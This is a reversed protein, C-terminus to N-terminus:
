VLDDAVLALAEPDPLVKDRVEAPNWEYVPVLQLVQMVRIMLSPMCGALRAVRPRHLNRVIAALADAGRLRTLGCSGAGDLVIVAGLPASRLQSEIPVPMTRRKTERLQTAAALGSCTFGESHERLCLTDDGVIRSGAALLSRLLTSKGAGSRGAIALAKRRGPLVATAAHLVLDGRRWLAAPLATAVLMASVEEMAAGEAREISMRAAAPNLWYRGLGRMEFLLGGDAALTYPGDSSRSSVAGVPEEAIELAVKAASGPWAMAGPIAIESEIALDYGCYLM